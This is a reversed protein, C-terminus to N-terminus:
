IPKENTLNYIKILSLIKEQTIGQKVTKLTNNSPIIYYYCNDSTEYIQSVKRGLIRYIKYIDGEAIEKSPVKHFVVDM